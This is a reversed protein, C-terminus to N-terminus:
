PAERIFCKSTSFWLCWLVRSCTSLSCVHPPPPRAGPRRTQGQRPTEARPRTARALHAIVRTNNYRLSFICKTVIRIRCVSSSPCACAAQAAQTTKLHQQHRACFATASARKRTREGASNRNREGLWEKGCASNRKQTVYVSAQKGGVCV